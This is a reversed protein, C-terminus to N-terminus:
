SRNRALAVLGTGATPRLRQMGAFPLVGLQIVAGAIAKPQMIGGSRATRDQMSSGDEHAAGLRDAVRGRVKELAYGLPWGYVTVEVDGFGASTLLQRAGEPSYRRYHGALTDWNNFRAQWAPMSLLLHGGPAVSRRWSRAAAADNELHELVEFACVLDFSRDAAVDDSTVNLIEGGAASIRPRAIAFSTADPEVALYSARAALRAGFAGRGCGIELITQPRLEDVIRKVVSWRLLANPALPPAAASV